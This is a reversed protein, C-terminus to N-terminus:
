FYLLNSLRRIAKFFGWSVKVQMKKILMNELLILGTVAGYVSDTPVVLSVGENSQKGNRPTPLQKSQQTHGGGLHPSVWPCSHWATELWPSSTSAPCSACTAPCLGCTTGTQLWTSCPFACTCGRPYRWWTTPPSTWPRCSGCTELRQVVPLSCWFSKWLFWGLFFGECLHFNFNMLPAAQRYSQEILGHQSSISIIEVM